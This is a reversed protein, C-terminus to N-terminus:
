RDPIFRVRDGPRLLSPEDASPRFIETQTAGIIQWGGPSALSYIGTQSGAIGVSGKPVRTRPSTKRPTVIRADVKGMYAFGPLFGLMYVRYERGTFIELVEDATVGASEAVFELDPSHEGGFTVPIEIVRSEIRDESRAACAAEAIGRVANYATAAAPFAKRVDATDYILSVSSYAPISEVYGPFPFTDLHRAIAIAMDNLEPAILSGLEITLAGDGLPFIRISSEAM